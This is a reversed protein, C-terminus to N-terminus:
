ESTYNKFKKRLHRKPHFQVANGQKAQKSFISVYLFIAEHRSELFMYKVMVAYYEKVEKSLYTNGPPVVYLLSWVTSNRCLPLSYLQRM